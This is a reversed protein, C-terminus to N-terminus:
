LRFAGQLLLTDTVLPWMGDAALLNLHLHEPRDHDDAAKQEPDAVRDAMESCHESGRAFTVHAQASESNM